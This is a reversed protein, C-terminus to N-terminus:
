AVGYRRRVDRLVVFTWPWLLMSAFAVSWCAWANVPTGLAGNVWLVLLQYGAVLVFIGAGQQWLPLVRMRLYLKRTIFAVLALGLAHQGLLTGGLVDLLLGAGWGLGVGIRGPLAMCWYILVLGVWAPRWGQAWDPLPLATLFFALAFSLAIVWWGPRFLWSM